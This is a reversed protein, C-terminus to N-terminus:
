GERKGMGIRENRVRGGEDGGEGGRGGGGRDGGGEKENGDKWRRRGGGEWGERM